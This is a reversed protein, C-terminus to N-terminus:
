DRCSGWLLSQGEIPLRGLSMCVELRSQIRSPSGVAEGPIVTQALGAVGDQGRPGFEVGWRLRESRLGPPQCGLHWSREEM